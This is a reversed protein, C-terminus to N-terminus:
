GGLGSCLGCGRMVDDGACLGSRLAPRLRLDPRTAPRVGFLQGTVTLLPLRYRASARRRILVGFACSLTPAADHDSPVMVIPM